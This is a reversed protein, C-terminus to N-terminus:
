IFHNEVDIQGNRLKKNKENKYSQIALSKQVKNGPSKQSSLDGLLSLYTNELHETRYYYYNLLKILINDKIYKRSSSKLFSSIYKTHDRGKLDSYIFISIFTELESSNREHSYLREKIDEEMVIELKSSSVLQGTIVQQALPLLNMMFDYLILEEDKTIKIDEIILRAIAVYIATCHILSKYSRSKLEGNITEETNKLVRAVTSWSIELKKYVSINQNKKALGDSQNFLNMELQVDNLHDIEEVSAKPSEELKEVFDSELQTVLSSTSQFIKDLNKSDFTSVNLFEAYYKEMRQNVLDLIDEADRKLGTYYDIENEFYLYNDESLVQTKFEVNFEMNKMLFYRFFCNFRFYLYSKNGEYEEAFIGVKEVDHLIKDPDFKFKRSNLYSNIFNIIDIRELRYNKQDKKYMTHALESLLRQKNKFDFKDSYTMEMNHKEFLVEIFNELMSANNIPRYNPQFEIINLLMSVALPTRPINLNNFLKIIEELSNSNNYSQNTSFWNKILDRIQKSKFENIQIVKFNYFEPYERLEIPLDSTVLSTATAIVSVNSNNKLFSELMKLKSNKRASPNINDILLVIEYNRLLEPVEGIRLNLFRAIDTEIKSNNFDNLDIFVPIKNYQSINWAFDLLLKDLLITKGSEKSGVLLINQSSECIHNIEYTIVEKSDPPTHTM